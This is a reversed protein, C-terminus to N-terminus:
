CATQMLKGTCWGARRCKKTVRVAAVPLLGLLRNSCLEILLLVDWACLVAAADQFRGVHASAAGPKEAVQPCPLRCAAGLIGTRDPHKCSFYVHDETISSGSCPLLCVRLPLREGCGFCGRAPPPPPRAALTMGCLSTGMKAVGFGLAVGLWFHWLAALVVNVLGAPCMLAGPCPAVTPHRCASVLPPPPSRPTGCRSGLHWSEGIVVYSCGLFMWLRPNLQQRQENGGLLTSGEAEMVVTHLLSQSSKKRHIPKFLRGRWPWRM